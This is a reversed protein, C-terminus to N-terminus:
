GGTRFDWVAASTKMKLFLKLETNFWYLRILLGTAAEAGREIKPTCCPPAAACSCATSCPMDDKVGMRLPINLQQKGPALMNVWM